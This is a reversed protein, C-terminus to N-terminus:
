VNVYYKQEGLAYQIERRVWSARLADATLLVVMADSEQLAQDVKNPWNDGPLVTVPPM